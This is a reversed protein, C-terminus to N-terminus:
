VRASGLAKILCNTKRNIIASKQGNPLVNAWVRGRAGGSQGMVLKYEQGSDAIARSLVQQGAKQIVAQVEPSKRLEAFGDFDPVFEIDKAM